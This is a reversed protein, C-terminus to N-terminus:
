SFETNNVELTYQNKYGLKILRGRPKHHFVFPTDKLAYCEMRYNYCRDDITIQTRSGKIEMKVNEEEHQLGFEYYLWNGLAYRSFVPKSYLLKNQEETAKIEEESSSNDQKAEEQLQNQQQPQEVVPEQM